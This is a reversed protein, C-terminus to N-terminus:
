SKRHQPEIALCGLCAGLSAFAVVGMPNMLSEGSGQLRYLAMGVLAFVLAGLSVLVCKKFTSM